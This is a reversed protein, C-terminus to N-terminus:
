EACEGSGVSRSSALLLGGNCSLIFSSPLLRRVGAAAALTPTRVHRCHNTQSCASLSLFQWWALRTMHVDDACAIYTCRYISIGEIGVSSSYM